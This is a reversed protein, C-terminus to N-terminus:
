LVVDLAALADVLSCATAQSPSGPANGELHIGVGQGTSPDYWIAGSDGRASIPATAGPPPVLIMGRCSAHVTKVQGVFDVVASTSRTTRGFKVLTEGKVPDRAGKLTLATGFVANSRGRSGTSRAIAADGAAGHIARVVAGVASKKVTGLDVEGPQLVTRGKTGAADAFVHWASLLFWEGTGSDRVWAGFSGAGRGEGAISVGPRIPDQRTRPNAM